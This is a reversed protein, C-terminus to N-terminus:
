NALAKGVCLYDDSSHSEGTFIEDPRDLIQLIFRAPIPCSLPSDSCGSLRKVATLYRLITNAIRCVHLTLRRGILGPKHAPPTPSDPSAPISSDAQRPLERTCSLAFPLPSPHAHGVPLFQQTVMTTSTPLIFDATSVSLCVAKLLACQSLLGIPEGCDCWVM